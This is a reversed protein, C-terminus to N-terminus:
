KLFEESNLKTLTYFNEPHEFTNVYYWLEVYGNNKNPGHNIVSWIYNRSALVNYNGLYMLHDLPSTDTVIGGKSAWGRGFIKIFTLLKDRWQEGRLDFVRSFDIWDVELMYFNFLESPIIPQEIDVMNPYPHKKIFEKDRSWIEPLELYWKGFTYNSKQVSGYLKM